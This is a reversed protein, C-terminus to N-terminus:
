TQPVVYIRNAMGPGIGIRTQGKAIIVPGPAPKIVTIVDGKLVGMNSLRMLFNRGGAIEAIRYKGPPVSSLPMM